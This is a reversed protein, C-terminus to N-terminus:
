QKKEIRLGVNLINKLPNERMIQELIFTYDGPKRFRFQQNSATLPIRHEYIDDMGTGRWGEVDTALILDYRAKQTTDQGPQRTILNLYINNFNYKDNHRLVIFLNYASTTDKINFTFSPKYTNDWKHGPLTVSKEFLDIHTCSTFFTQVGAVALLGIVIFRIRKLFITKAFTIM